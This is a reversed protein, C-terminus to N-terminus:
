KNRKTKKTKKNKEKQKKKHKETIEKYLSFNMIWHVVAATYYAKITKKRTQKRILITNQFFLFFEQIVEIHGLINISSLLCFLKLIGLCVNICIQFM